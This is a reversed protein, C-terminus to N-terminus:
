HKGGEPLSATTAPGPVPESTSPIPSGPGASGPIPSQLAQGQSPDGPGAGPATIPPPAATLRYAEVLARFKVYSGPSQAFQAGPGDTPTIPPLPPPAGETPAAQGEAMQQQYAKQMKDWVMMVRDQLLAPLFIPPPPMQPPQAPPLSGAIQAAALPDAQIKQSTAQQQEFVDMQDSYAVMAKGYAVKADEGFLRGGYFAKTMEDLQELRILEEQWGAISRSISDWGAQDALQEGEETRLHSRLILFHVMPEDLTDQVRIIGKDRFDVWQREAHDVQYSTDPSLDADLNYLELLKRRVIPSSIDILQDALAERAAERLLTGKSISSGREIKCEIQGRLANGTYQHYSWVKNPGLVRYEDPDVQLLWEMHLLHSFSKEASRILEDERLSQTQEDQDVLFQLGSTTGVNKPAMGITADQPGTRRLDAQIRDREEYVESPMLDGTLIEPKTFEPNSVSPQFFFIKGLGYDANFKVPNDLWMDPPMYLNPSGRTLRWHIVQGDLGNLRNQPSILNAPLGTGFLELPRMKLRSISMEVRPVYQEVPEGEVQAQLLLPGDEVVKNKLATVYRGLPYRYSPLEVMEDVNYHHDLIGSDLSSSWKGLIDFNGLIPDNMLLENVPDPDVEDILHPAHEELWEASRIKRRGWRRLTSPTQRYGGDQPYFEFPLDVELVSHGKPELIGLSRGFIDSENEAENQDPEYPALPRAEDACTPCYTLRQLDLDSADAIQDPDPIVPKATEAWAIPKGQVGARLVESPVEDSYLKTQCSACWVASPAGTARLTNYSRDRATYLLGTGTVAYHFAHQYRKEPWLLTDLRHQIMDTACQAAAKIAPDPSQPTVKATWQRKVFTIVAQEVAPDIENTVPRPMGYPGSEDDRLISGRIGDFASEYDLSAWQKGLFYWMWLGIEAMRQNRYISWPNILRDRFELLDAESSGEAPFFRSDRTSRTLANM